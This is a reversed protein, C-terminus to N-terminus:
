SALLFDQRPNFRSETLNVDYKYKNREGSLSFPELFCHIFCNEWSGAKYANFLVNIFSASKPKIDNRIYARNM